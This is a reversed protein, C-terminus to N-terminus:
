TQGRRSPFCGRLLLQFPYPTEGGRVSGLSRPHLRLVTLARTERAPKTVALGLEQRVQGSPQMCCCALCFVGEASASHPARARKLCPQSRFTSAPRGSTKVAPGQFWTVGSELVSNELVPSCPCAFSLGEALRARGCSGSGESARTHFRVNARSLKQQSGAGQRGM